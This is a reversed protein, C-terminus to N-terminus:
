VDCLGGKLARKTYRNIKAKSMRKFVFGTPPNFPKTPRVAKKSPFDALRMSIGSNGSNPSRSSYYRISRIAVAEREAAEDIADWFKM